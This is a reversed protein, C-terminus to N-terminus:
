APVTSPTLPPRVPRNPRRAPRASPSPRWGPRAAATPSCAPWRHPRCPASGARRLRRPASGTGTAPATTTTTATPATTTTTTSTTPATTTTTGSGPFPSPRNGTLVVSAQGTASATAGAPDTADPGTLAFTAHDVAPAQAPGLWHPVAVTVGYTATSTATPACGAPLAAASGLTWTVTGTAADFTGADPVAASSTSSVYTTGAPLQDTLRGSTADLGGDTVPVCTPDVTFTVDGGGAAQAPDATTVAVAPQPAAIAQGTAPTPVTVSGLAGGSLVPALTWATHAATTGEPPTVTLTVAGSFGGVFLQDNLDIVLNQGGGPVPVGGSEAPQVSPTGEVLGSTTSTAQYSWTAMSPTTTTSLPITVTSTPGCTAGAAVECSVALTYTTATGAPAAPPTTPTIAIQASATTAGSPATLALTAVVTTLLALM